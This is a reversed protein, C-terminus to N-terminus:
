SAAGRACLAETAEWLRRAAADDRARRSPEVQACKYWYKGSIGEVEPSAALHVVTRAGKEPTIAFPRLVFMGVIGGLGADGERAFNTAVFGPHLANVTVGTGALRRALERAFYVNALKSKCYADWGFFRRASQLDDFDLGRVAGRHADSAVVVVRAPRSATLMERLLDSLLFHGVHNVGFTTEFGERTETRRTLMLGANNVLVDIRSLRECLEAACARISAFSALDLAVRSVEPADAALGARRRIDALATEGKNADRVAIVVRAGRRVMELAVERGIGSNGGTVVVTKGHM